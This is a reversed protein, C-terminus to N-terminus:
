NSAAVDAITRDVSRVEPVTLRVQVVAGESVPGTRDPHGIDVMHVRGDIGDVMLYHRDQGDDIEGRKLVRGVVPMGAGAEAPDGDHIQSDPLAHEMGRVQLEHHLMKMIDGREGMRRLVAELGARLHWRGPGVETALGLDGLKNLRGARLAQAEP